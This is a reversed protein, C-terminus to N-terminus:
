KPVPRVIVNAKNVKDRIIDGIAPNIPPPLGRQPPPPLMQQPPRDMAPGRIDRVITGSDLDRKDIM